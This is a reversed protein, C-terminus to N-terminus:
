SPAALGRIRDLLWPLGALPDHQGDASGLASRAEAVVLADGAGALVLEAALRASAPHVGAEDALHFLEAEHGEFWVSVDTV